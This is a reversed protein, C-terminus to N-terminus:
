EEYKQALMELSFDNMFKECECELCIANKCIEKWENSEYPNKSCKLVHIYFERQYNRINSSCNIVPSFATCWNSFYLLLLKQVETVDKYTKSFRKEIITYDDYLCAADTINTLNLDSRINTVKDIILAKIQQKKDEIQKIENRKQIEDERKWNDKRQRENFIWTILSGAVTGVTGIMGIVVQNDM